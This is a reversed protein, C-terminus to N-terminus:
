KEDNQNYVLKKGKGVIKWVDGEVLVAQTDILAIIPYKTTEAAKEIIPRYEERYHATILFPVLNLGTLDTVEYRNRDQHEWTAQEITPCTIYSGASIGIYLKGQSIHEKIVNEFGSKKVWKLLFFTNGGNVFIIDTDQLSKDGRKYKKGRMDLDEIQTIGYDRLQQRYVELWTPNKDDGYAATTIFAVRVEKAPVTLLSLFTEKLEPQLGQSTLLLKRKM